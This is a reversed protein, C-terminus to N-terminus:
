RSYTPLLRYIHLVDRETPGRKNAGSGSVIRLSLGTTLVLAANCVYSAHTVALKIPFSSENKALSPTPKLSVKSEAHLYAGRSVSVTTESRAVHPNQNIFSRPLVPSVLQMKTSEPIKQLALTGYIVILTNDNWRYRSASNRLTRYRYPKGFDSVIILRALTM